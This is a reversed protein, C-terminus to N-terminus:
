KKEIVSKKTLRHWKNDKHCSWYQWKNTKVDFLYAYEESFIGQNKTLDKKLETENKTILPKVDIWKEHRDRFYAVTHGEVPTDFTHGKPKEISEHLSSIYGLNILNSVKEPTNYNELLIKGNNSLYGDWHCYISKIESETKIAIRSRTGM